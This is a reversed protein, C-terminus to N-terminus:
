FFTSNLWVNLEVDSFLFDASLFSSPWNWHIILIISDAELFQTILVHDYRIKIYFVYYCVFILFCLLMSNFLQWSRSVLFYQFLSLRLFREKFWAYKLWGVSLIIQRGRCFESFFDMMVMTQIMMFFCFFDWLTNSVFRFLFVGKRSNFNIIIFYFTIRFFVWLHSSIYEGIHSYIDAFWSNFTHSLILICDFRSSFM